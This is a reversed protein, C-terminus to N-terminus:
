FQQTWNMRVLSLISANPGDTILLFLSPTSEGTEQPPTIQGRKVRRSDMADDEDGVTRKPVVKEGEDNAIEKGKDQRRVNESSLLSEKLHLSSSFTGITKLVLSVTAVLVSARSSISLQPSITVKGSEVGAGIIKFVPIKSFYFGAM